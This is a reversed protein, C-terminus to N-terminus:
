GGRRSCGFYRNPVGVEKDAKSPCFHIWKYFGEVTIVFGIAASIKRALAQYDADTSGPRTLWMSDVIAHIM